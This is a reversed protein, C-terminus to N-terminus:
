PAVLFGMLFTTLTSIAPVAGMSLATTAGGGILDKDGVVGDCASQAKAAQCKKMQADLKEGFIDKGLGAMLDMDGTGCSDNSKVTTKDCSYSPGFKCQKDKDCEAKDPKSGCVMGLTFMPKMACTNPILFDFFKIQDMGCRNNKGDWTCVPAAKECAAKDKAGSGMCALAATVGLATPCIPLYCDVKAQFDAKKDCTDKQSDTMKPCAKKIGYPDKPDHVHKTECSSNLTCKKTDEDFSHYEGYQCTGTCGAKDKKSCPDAAQTPPNLQAKVFDGCKEIKMAKMMFKSNEQDNISCKNSKFHCKTNKECDAQKKIAACAEVTVIFAKTDPYKELQGSQLAFQPTLDCRNDEWNCPKTSSLRRGNQAPFYMLQSTFRQAAAMIENSASFANNANAVSALFLFSLM